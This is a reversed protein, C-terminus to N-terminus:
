DLPHIRRGISSTRGYVGLQVGLICREDDVITNFGLSHSDM